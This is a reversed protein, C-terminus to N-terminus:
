LRYSSLQYSNIAFKLVSTVGPNFIKSLSLNQSFITAKLAVFNIRKILYFLHISNLINCIVKDLYISYKSIKTLKM